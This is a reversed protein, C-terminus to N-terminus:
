DDPYHTYVIHNRDDNRERTPLQASSLPKAPPIVEVLMGAKEAAPAANM